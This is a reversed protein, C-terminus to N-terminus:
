FIGVLGVLHDLTKFLPESEKSLLRDLSYSSKGAALIRQTDPLDLFELTDYIQSSTRRAMVRSTLVLDDESNMLRVARVEASDKGMAKYKELFRDSLIQGLDSSKGGILAKSNIPLDQFTLVQELDTQALYVMGVIDAPPCILYNKWAAGLLLKNAWALRNIARSFYLTEYVPRHVLGLKRLDGVITFVRDILTQADQFSDLQVVLPHPNSYNDRATVIVLRYSSALIVPLQSALIEKSRGADSARIYQRIIESYQIKSQAFLRSQELQLGDKFRLELEDRPQIIKRGDVPDAASLGACLTASVLFIGVARLVAIM